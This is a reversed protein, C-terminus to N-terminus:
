QPFLSAVPGGATEDAYRPQEQMYQGLAYMHFFRAWQWHIEPLAKGHALLDVAKKRIHLLANIREPTFPIDSRGNPKKNSDYVHHLSDGLVQEAYRGKYFLDTNERIAQRKGGNHQNRVQEVVLKAGKHSAELSIHQQRLAWTRMAKRVLDLTVGYEDG